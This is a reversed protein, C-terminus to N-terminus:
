EPNRSATISFGVPSIPIRISNPEIKVTAQHELKATGHHGLSPSRRHRSRKRIIFFSM